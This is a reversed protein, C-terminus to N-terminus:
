RCFFVVPASVTSPLCAKSCYALSLPMVMCPYQASLPMNLSFVHTCAHLSLDCVKFNAATPAWWWFPWASLRILSICSKALVISICALLLHLDVIVVFRHGYAILIAFSTSFLVGLICCLSRLDGRWINAFVLTAILGLCQCGKPQGTYTSCLVSCFLVPM